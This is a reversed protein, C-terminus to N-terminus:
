EGVVLDEATITTLLKEVFQQISAYIEELYRKPVPSDCWSSGQDLVRPEINFYNGMPDSSDIILSATWGYSSSTKEKGRIVIDSFDIFVEFVQDLEKYRSVRSSMDALTLKSQDIASLVKPEYIKSQNGM